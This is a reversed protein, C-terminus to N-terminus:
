PGTRDLAQGPRGSTELTGTAAQGRRCHSEVAGFAGDPYAITLDYMSAESNDDHQDVVCGPLAERLCDRAWAEEEPLGM